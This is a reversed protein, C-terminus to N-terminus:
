HKKPFFYKTIKSKWQIRQTIDMPMEKQPKGFSWLPEISRSTQRPHASPGHQPRLAPHRSIAPMRGSHLNLYPLTLPGMDDSKISQSISQNTPQNTLSRLHQHRQVIVCLRIQPTHRRNDILTECSTSREYRGCRLLQTLEVLTRCLQLGPRTMRVWGHHHCCCIMQRIM